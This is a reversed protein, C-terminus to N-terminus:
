VIAEQQQNELERAARMQNVQAAQAATLITGFHKPMANAAISQQQAINTIVDQMFNQQQQLKRKENYARTNGNSEYGTFANTFSKGVINAGQAIAAGTDNAASAIVPAATNAASAIFNGADSAGQAVSSAAENVSPAIFNGIENAEKAIFNGVNSAERAIFNGTDNLYSMFDECIIQSSGAAISMFMLVQLKKGVERLSRRVRINKM